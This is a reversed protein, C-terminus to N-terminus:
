QALRRLLEADRAVARRAVAEFEASDAVDTPTELFRRLQMAALDGPSLELERARASLAQALEDDLELTLTM